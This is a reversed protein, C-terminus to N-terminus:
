KDRNKIELPVEGEAIWWCRGSTKETRIAHWTTQGAVVQVDYEGEPLQQADHVHKWADAPKSCIWVDGTTRHFRIVTPEVEGAPKVLRFAYPTAEAARWREDASLAATMLLVLGITTSTALLRRTNM